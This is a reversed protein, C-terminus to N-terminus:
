LLLGSVSFTILAFSPSPAQRLQYGAPLRGQALCQMPIERVLSTPRPISWRRQRWERGREGGKREAGAAAGRGGGAPSRNTGQQAGRGGRLTRAAGCVKCEPVGGRVASSRLGARQVRLPRRGWPNKRGCGGRRRGEAGSPM